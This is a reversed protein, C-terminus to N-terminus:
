QRELHDRLEKRFFEDTERYLSDLYAAADDDSMTPIVDHCLALTDLVGAFFSKRMEKRQVDPANVPIVKKAFELWRDEVTKLAAM